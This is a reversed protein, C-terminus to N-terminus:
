KLLLATILEALEAPEVIGERTLLLKGGAFFHTTPYTEFSHTRKIERCRGPVHMKAKGVKISPFKAAIGELIPDYAQCPECTALGYAVVAGSSDTFEKYNEDSVDLVTSM